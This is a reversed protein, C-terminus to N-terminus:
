VEREKLKFYAAVYLLGIALIGVGFRLQNGIPQPLDIFRYENSNTPSVVGLRGFPIISSEGKLAIMNSVIFSNMMFGIFLLVFALVAVAPFGYRRVLLLGVLAVPHILVTFVWLEPPIFGDFAFFPSLVPTGNPWEQSNVYQVGVTDILSFLSFYVVLFGLGSVLWILGIKELSSAPQMLYTMAREKHNLVDIQQWIFVYWAAFGVFFFPFGRNRAVALPNANYFILASVTLVVLLFALNTLLQGKHDVFYKRVLRGFRSLSFTQNM